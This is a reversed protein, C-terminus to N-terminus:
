ATVSQWLDRGWARQGEDDQLDIANWREMASLIFSNAFKTNRNCQLMPQTQFPIKFRQDPPILLRLLHTPGSLPELDHSVPRLSLAVHCLQPRGSLPRSTRQWFWRALPNSSASGLIKTEQSRKKETALWIEQRWYSKTGGLFISYKRNQHRFTNALYRLPFIDGPNTKTNLLSINHYLGSGVKHM